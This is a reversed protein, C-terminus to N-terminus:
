QGYRGAATLLPWRDTRFPSAPLGAANVLDTEQPNDVWGYRVAVPAAVGERWVRVTRGQARAQAPQFRGDAAAIAFGQLSQGGGRSRLGGEAHAFQLKVRGDGVRLGRLGRLVPGSFAVAKGHLHRLAWAALRDGVPQKRRPHIDHADGVDTAVVMGTRPLSLAQRQADRLEAWTSGALSNRGAPLFSALQVYYFPFDGQGWQMRWDTILRQFAGAYRAARAVNSEGQYWLVGRMRLPLLPHVMGNFLLTPADNMGLETPQQLAAVRAKWPGALPVVGAVTALQPVAADGHLGGGGGTDTVRVAISNSGARLVGAPVPWCRPTDWGCLGGVRQGNVWAEDCDDVAGLHLTAPGAAQAPSLDVRRRLWVVGDVGPLGQEEWLRPVALTPWAHDDLDPAAFAAPEAEPPTVPLGPQWGQVLALARQGRRALLETASAPLDQVQPALDPDALAARPSTWTELHSGGWSSNILGVPIGLERSLRRAFFYAVASFEGATAPSAVQWRLAAIDDAPRLAAQHAVKAHRILPHDAAAVEREADDVDKLPWEMNSQGSAVWLEGVLLDRLVLENRALVRLEHPGGAPAAPLTVQWRGDRGAVASRRSGRFVVTVLEGPAAWGWVRIPVQRQLVMHDGFVGALRAQALAGASGLLALTLVALTRRWGGRAPQFPREDPRLAADM